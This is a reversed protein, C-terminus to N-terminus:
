GRRGPRAQPLGRRREVEQGSGSLRGRVEVPDLYYCRDAQIGSRRPAIGHRRDMRSSRSRLASASRRSSRTSRIPVGEHLTGTVMLELNSRDLCAQDNGADAKGADSLRESSAGQSEGRDAGCRPPNGAADNRGDGLTSM